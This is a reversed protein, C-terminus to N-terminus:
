LEVVIRVDESKSNLPCPSPGCKSLKFMKMLDVGSGGSAPNEITELDKLKCTANLGAALFSVTLTGSTKVPRVKALLVGKEYWHPSAQSAAPMV